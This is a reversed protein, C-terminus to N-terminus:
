RSIAMLTLLIFIFLVFYRVAAIMLKRSIFIELFLSLLASTTILEVLPIMEWAYGRLHPQTYLKIDLWAKRSLEYNKFSLISQITAFFKEMLIVDDELWLFLDSKKGSNEIHHQVSDHCVLFDAVYKM